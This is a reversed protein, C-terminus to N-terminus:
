KRILVGFVKIGPEIELTDFLKNNLLVSNDENVKINFDLGELNFNEIYYPSVLIFIANAQTPSLNYTHTLNAQNIANILFNYSKDVSSIDISFDKNSKNKIKQNKNEAVKQNDSPELINSNEM